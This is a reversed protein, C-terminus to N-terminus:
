TNEISKYIISFNKKLYIFVYRLNVFLSQSFTKCLLQVTYLLFPFYSSLTPLIVFQKNKKTLSM